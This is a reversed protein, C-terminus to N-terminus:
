KRSEAFTVHHSETIMIILAECVPLEAIRIGLGHASSTAQLHAAGVIVPHLPWQFWFGLFLVISPLKRVAIVIHRVGSIYETGTQGDRGLQAPGATGCARCSATFLGPPWAQVGIIRESPVRRRWSRQVHISHM